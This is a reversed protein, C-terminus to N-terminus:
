EYVEADVEEKVEGMGSVQREGRGDWCMQKQKAEERKRRGDEKKRKVKQREDEQAKGRRSGNVGFSVMKTQAIEM